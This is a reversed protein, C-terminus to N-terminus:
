RATSERRSREQGDNASKDPRGAPRARKISNDLSRRSENVQRATESNKQGYRVLADRRSTWVQLQVPNGVDRQYQLQAVTLLRNTSGPNGPALVFEGDAAGNASWKFYHPTKLPRGNEYVRFFAVDLDYRPYTFNDYDGGFFAIQEEAAFVLRIDTYKTFRYLWYEGGSYLTVVESRLGTKDTSEKEIAAAEAKRQENAERDTAAPKVASQVRRTVDEYSTLVNIELDPSRLEEGRTRAYFGEKTYDRDKTSIKQLQGSAVHQNTMLLGEPSVFSGSGGDNLRVSALRIHELWVDTPEFNYREKWQKRPPNDFTWMGEDALSILSSSLLAFLAFSCFSKKM